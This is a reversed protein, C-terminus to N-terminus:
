PLKSSNRRLLLFQENGSARLCQQFPPGSVSLLQSLLFVSRFSLCRLALSAFFVRPFPSFPCNFVRSLPPNKFFFIYIRQFITIILSILLCRNNDVKRIQRGADEYAVLPICSRSRCKHAFDTQLHLCSTQIMTSDRHRRKLTSNRDNPNYNTM